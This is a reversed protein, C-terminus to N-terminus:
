RALYLGSQEWLDNFFKPDSVGIASLIRESISSKNYGPLRRLDLQHTVYLLDSIAGKSREKLSFGKIANAFKDIEAEDKFLDVGCAAKKFFHASRENM